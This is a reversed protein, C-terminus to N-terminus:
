SLKESVTERLHMRARRLRTKVNDKSINLIKATEKVSLQEIDRLVFVARYAPPLDKISDDLAKRTESSLIEKDPQDPLPTLGRSHIENFVVDEHISLHTQTNNKRLRMLAVNTAIRYLWSFLSSQMRFGPLKEIMTTFTEQLADEVDEDNRLIRKLLTYLRDSYVNVIETLAYQDGKQAKKILTEEPLTM